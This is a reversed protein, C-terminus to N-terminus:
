DIYNTLGIFYCGFLDSSGSYVDTYHSYQCYNDFDSYDCMSWCRAYLHIYNYGYQGSGAVM